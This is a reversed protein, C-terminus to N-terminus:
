SLAGELGHLQKAIDTELSELLDEDLMWYLYFPYFTDTMRDALEKRFVSLEDLSARAAQIDTKGRDALAKKTLFSTRVAHYFTKVFYQYLDLTLDLEDMFYQPIGLTEPALIARLQAAEDVAAQKEAIIAQISEDTLAIRDSAGPEWQERSHYSTVVYFFDQLTPSIKSSYQFVHGRTYLTKEIVSWSAKMFEKLKGAAESSEPIVAPRAISEPRMSTQLGGRSWAAYISDLELDPDNALMAGGYLNLMNLSNFTSSENMLEWDTRFWVGTVGKERCYRIRSQLDEVLSCPFVGLGCYQGWVDFEVWQRLGGTDGIKVNHPFTPWFDHPVNKLAVIIEKSVSAAAGVVTSQEDVTYTFDRVVLDKKKESLPKHMAQLLQKYWDANDTRQCRECGCPNTSISVKSERTAPSMIIGTLDPFETLLERIKIELFEFWFPDTPCVKGEATRLHTFLELLEEPYWIEKVELYFGIGLNKAKRIVERLYLRSSVITSRRLPWRKYMMEQTFFAKPFVLKDIIDNQHFILANLGNQAMFELAREVAATSWMRSNHIELGRLQFWEM